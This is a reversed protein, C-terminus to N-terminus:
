GSVLLTLTVASPCNLIGNVKWKGRIKEGLFVAEAESMEADGAGLQYGNQPLKTVFFDVATRFDLPIVGTVLTQDKPLNMRSTIATGPPILNEPVVDPRDISQKAGACAPAQPAAAQSSGGDGSRGAAIGIVVVALVAMSIGALARVGNRGRLSPRIGGARGTPKETM